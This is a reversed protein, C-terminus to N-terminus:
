SPLYPTSPPTFDSSWAAAGKLVRFEDIWGGFGNTGSIFLPGGGSYDGSNAADSGEQVGDLFLRTTGSARILAVHYWTNTALTSAGTIIAGFTGDFVRLVPGSVIQLLAGWGEIIRDTTTIDNFRVWFDISYDGTGFAFDTDTAGDDTVMQAYDPYPGTRPFLISSGGFKSQAADIEPVFTVGSVTYPDATHFGTSDIFTLTGDADDGHLLFVQNPHPAPVVSPAAVTTAWALQGPFRRLVYTM